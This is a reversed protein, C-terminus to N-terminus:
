GDPTLNPSPGIRLEALTSVVRTGHAVLHVGNLRVTIPLMPQLADAIEKFIRDDDSCAATLHYPRQSRTRLTAQVGPWAAILGHTLATLERDDAPLLSVAGPLHVVQDFVVRPRALGAALTRLRQLVAETVHALPLFPAAVTIHAPIGQDAWPDLRDRWRDVLLRAEPVPAILSTSWASTV